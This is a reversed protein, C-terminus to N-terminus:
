QVLYPVDRRITQAATSGGGALSTQGIIEVYVDSNETRARPLSPEVLFVDIWRTVNVDVTRGKVGEANCNIVAVSLVRRDPATGDVPVGVSTDPAPQSYATMGGSDAESKLRTSANAAEWKYVQYRTPTTTGFWDLLNQSTPLTPYDLKNTGFYATRDWNGDGIRGNTCSGLDSVAHCMDRPYGMPSLTSYQAATLGTTASGPLYPNAPIKWGNGGGTQFACGNSCSNGNGSLLVDKRTNASPPCLSKGNGCANNIGNAYIDFRTNLADLVSVQVGPKTTVGDAAICDGPPSVRGLTQSTAQAGNGADTDLYGFDGPAYNSGGDNAVLRLGDGIYNAVTFDPDTSEAPNCIMVPPVKCVSSGLGALAKAEIDGFFAGVIPTFAYNAIRDDVAVEIFRADEDTTAVTTKDKDQYFTVGSIGTCGDNGLAVASGGNIKVALGGNDNALLTSNSLLGIAANAARACAGDKHDLQTAGALAAEDAGNQLESDMGAVRSYDFAVGAIGVLAFLSLAYM